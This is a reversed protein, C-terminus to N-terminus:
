TIQEVVLDPQRDRQRPNHERYYQDHDLETEEDAEGIGSGGHDIVGSHIQPNGPLRHLIEIDAHRNGPAPEVLRHRGGAHGPRFLVDHLEHGPLQRAAGLLTNLDDAEIRVASEAARPIQNFATHLIQ